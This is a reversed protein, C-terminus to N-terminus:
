VAEWCFVLGASSFLFSKDRCDLPFLLLLAYRSHQYNRSSPRRSLVSPRFFFRVLCNWKRKFISGCVCASMHTHTHLRENSRIEKQLCSWVGGGGGGPVCFFRMVSGGGGGDRKRPVRLGDVLVQDPPNIILIHATVPQHRRNMQQERPRFSSTPAM